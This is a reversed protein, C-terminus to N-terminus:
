KKIKSLLSSVKLLPIFEIGDKEINEKGGEERDVVALVKKVNAGNEKLVNIARVVSGGTTVVDEVVLVDEGKLLDGEIMEKTGHTKSEKRVIVFPKGTQISLAVALPVSGLEIGAIKENSVYKAMAKTIEILIAPNTTAKKINIYYNSKKGSTLTFEGFMVAGSSILLEEISM